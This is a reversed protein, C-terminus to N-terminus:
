PAPCNGPAARGAFRDSIWQLQDRLSGYVLADHGLGPYVNRQIRGGSRCLRSFITSGASETFLIDDGGGVLLMPGYIPKKGPQNRTLFQKIYKNDHWGPLLMQDTPLSAFAGSAASCGDEVSENYLALAQDTLVDKLDLGPYLTKAGYVWFALLGNVPSLKAREVARIGDELDSAGALSVTGLFDPDKIGGELQAVGLSSLGGQSHGVVLWKRSLNPVAAHAAPVSNIVDTGNSLMDLYAHRGETGLGAYDTAVVAYGLMVYEYLGEWNYFLNKMLSPACSRAVGSTGHSWALLPWGDKPPRGYPVLVVGSALVDRNDATRTHYLIRTATVGPPLVFDLAPESRVLTGAEATIKAGETGYFATIPLNRQADAAKGATSSPAFLDAGGALTQQPLGMPTWLALLALGCTGRLLMSIRSEVPKARRIPSPCSQTALVKKRAGDTHFSGSSITAAQDSADHMQHAYRTLDKARIGCELLLTARAWQSVVLHVEVDLDRLFELVRVALPAGTAGSIGVVIRKMVFKERGAFAPKVRM